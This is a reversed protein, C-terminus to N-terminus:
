VTYRVSSNIRGGSEVVRGSNGMEMERWRGESKM